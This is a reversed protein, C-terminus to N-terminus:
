EIILRLNNETNLIASNEALIYFTEPPPPTGGGEPFKGILVNTVYNCCKRWTYM